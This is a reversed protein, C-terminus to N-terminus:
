RAIYSAAIRRMRTSVSKCVRNSVSDTLRSARGASAREGVGQANQLHVRIAEGCNLHVGIDDAMGGDFAGIFAETLASM